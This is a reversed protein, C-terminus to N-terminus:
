AVQYVRPTLQVLLISLTCFLALDLGETMPVSVFGVLVFDPAAPELDSPEVLQQLLQSTIVEPQPPPHFTHPFFKLNKM